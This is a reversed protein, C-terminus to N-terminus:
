HFLVKSLLLFYSGLAEAYRRCPYGAM